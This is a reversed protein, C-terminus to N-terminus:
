LVAGKRTSSKPIYSLLEVDASVHTSPMTRLWITASLDRSMNM